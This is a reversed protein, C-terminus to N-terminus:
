NSIFEYTAIANSDVSNSTLNVIRLSILDGVSVKVSINTENGTIDTGTINVLLTSDVGNIRVIFRRVASRGPANELWAYLNTLRGTRTMLIQSENEIATQGSSKLYIVSSTNGSLSGAGNFNFSQSIYTGNPPNINIWVANDTTNNMCFWVQNTSSNLVMSGYTYNSIDDHQNTPNTVAHLSQRQISDIPIPQIEQTTEEEIIIKVLKQLNKRQYSSLTNSFTINISPATYTIPPILAVTIDLDINIKGELALMKADINTANAIGISYTTPM